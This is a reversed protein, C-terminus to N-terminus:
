ENPNKVNTEDTLIIYLDGEEELTYSEETELFIMMNNATMKFSIKHSAPLKEDYEDITTKESTEGPLLEYALYFKGWKVDEIKVKTIKNQIRIDGSKNCSIMLVVSVLAFRLKITKM